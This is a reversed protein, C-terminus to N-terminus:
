SGDGIGKVFKKFEKIQEKFEVETIDPMSNFWALVSKVEENNEAIGAFYQKYRNPIIKHLAESQADSYFGSMPGNIGLKEEVPLGVLIIPNYLALITGIEGVLKVHFDCFTELTEHRISPASTGGTFFNTKNLERYGKLMGKNHSYDSLEWYLQQVNNKWRFRENFEKFLGQKVLKGLSDSFHPSDSKSLLWEVAKKRGSHESVLYMSTVTLELARRLDAFAAKYSGILAHKIAYDLEMEVETSPYYGVRSLLAIDARIADSQHYAIFEIAHNLESLRKYKTKIFVLSENVRDEIGYIFIRGKKDLPELGGMVIETFDTM